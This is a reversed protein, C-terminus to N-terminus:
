FKALNWTLFVLVVGIVLALCGCWGPSHHQADPTGQSGLIMVGSIIALLGLILLVVPWTWM